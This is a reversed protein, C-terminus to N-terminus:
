TLSTSRAYKECSSCLHRIGSGQFEPYDIHYWKNKETKQSNGTQDIPKNQGPTIAISLTEQSGQSMEQDLDVIPCRQEKDDHHYYVDYQM